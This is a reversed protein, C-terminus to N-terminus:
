HRRGSGSIGISRDCVATRRQREDAEGQERRNRNALHLHPGPSEHRHRCKGFRAISGQCPRRDAVRERGCLGTRARRLHACLSATAEALSNKKSSSQKQLLRAYKSYSESLSPLLGDFAGNEGAWGLEEAKAIADAFASSSAAVCRVAERAEKTESEQDPKTIPQGGGGGCAALTLLAFTAAVALAVTPALRRDFSTM